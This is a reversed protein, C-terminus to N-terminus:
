SISPQDGVTGFSVSGEELSLLEKTDKINNNNSIKKFESIPLNSLSSLM